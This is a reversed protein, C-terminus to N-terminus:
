THLPPSSVDGDSSTARRPRCHARLSGSPLAEPVGRSALASAPASPGRTRRGERHAVAVGIRRGRRPSGRISEALVPEPWHLGSRCRLRMRIPPKDDLRLRPPHDEKRHLWPQGPDLPRCGRVGGDPSRGGGGPETREPSLHDPPGRPRPCSQHPLPAASKCSPHPICSGWATLDVARKRWVRTGEQALAGAGRPPPLAQLPVLGREERPGRVRVRELDEPRM